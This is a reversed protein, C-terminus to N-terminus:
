PGPVVLAYKGGEEFPKGKFTVTGKADAVATDNYFLKAGYYNALYVTDNSLGDVHVVLDNQGHMAMSALASVSLLVSRLFPSTPQKDM